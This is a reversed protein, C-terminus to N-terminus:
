FLNKIIGSLKAGIIDKSYNNIVISRGCKGMQDSLYSNKSLEIIADLWESNNNPGFGCSGKSLVELNMGFPSVVVPIGVAMYTLMKFSCKGRSWDTNSIPMIGVSFKQITSVEIEPQWKTYTIRESSIRSFKPPRDCVIHLQASPLLELVAKLSDEIEYLYKLGSYSGSWGIIFSDENKKVPYFRETDVATPLIVTRSFKSYHEAIYTNGCIVVHAMKAIADSQKGRSHLFIADDVDFVIPARILIESTKLTSILERQLFCVDTKNSQLTRKISDMLTVPLWALRHLLVEPPYAGFKSPLHHTEIGSLRLIDEYQMLRFRTSPINIGQTLGAMSIKNIM